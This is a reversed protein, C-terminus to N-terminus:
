RRTRVNARSNAEERDEFKQMERYELEMYDLDSQTFRRRKAEGQPWLSHSNLEIFLFRARAIQDKSKLLPAYRTETM